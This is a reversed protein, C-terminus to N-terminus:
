ANDEQRKAEAAHSAHIIELMNVGLAPQELTSRGDPWSIRVM